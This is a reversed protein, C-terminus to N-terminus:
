TFIWGNSLFSNFLFTTWILNIFVLLYLAYKFSLSQKNDQFLWLALVGIFIFLGLDSFNWFTSYDSLGLILVSVTSLCGLLFLRYEASYKKLYSFGTLLLVFFFPTNLTYRFLGHINGGQFGITFLAVGLFYLLSVKILYDKTNYYNLAISKQTQGVFLRLAILSFPVIIIFLVGLNIGFGEFSWDRLNHPISLVHGWHKQVEIFMFLSNSGYLLQITSVAATGLIFPATRKLSNILLLKFDRIKLFFFFETGIISFLIITYTPRTLAAIFFGLFFLSYKNRVFGYIGISGFLLFLSETYPIIYCVIVPFCFSLLSDSLYNGKESLTKLLILVALSYLIFNLFVVGVPPLMSVKWVLPFLPFFAFVQEGGAKQVDYGNESIFRYFVADWQICNKNNFEVYPLNQPTREVGDFVWNKSIKGLTNHYIKEQQFSFFLFWFLAFVFLQVRVVSSLKDFKLGM